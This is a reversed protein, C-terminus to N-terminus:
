FEHTVSGGTLEARIIKEVKEPTDPKSHCKRCLCYRFLRTKGKIAGWTEPAEPVFVGIMDPDSGCILCHDGPLPKDLDKITM